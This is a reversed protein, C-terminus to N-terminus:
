SEDDDTTGQPVRGEGIARAIEQHQECGIIKEVATYKGFNFNKIKSKKLDIIRKHNTTITLADIAKSEAAAILAQIAMEPAAFDNCYLILNAGAQYALVAAQGVEFNKTIAKMGMDDTIVLNRYRIKDHLLDKLFIRSLSAPYDPDINTFKIHAPMVLDLRARFARKFPQIEREELQALTATEVPLDDHSDILTNGHGPFHKACAIIDAKLLGRVFASAIKGVADINDSFARDGIATNTPITLVDACPAFNVNIGVAFLERGMCNAVLFAVSSSNLDGIKKASPWKTFPAKLRHVRGGEMDISIFLPAKDPMQLSLKQLEACLYFLQEPGEINRDFLIVGGINNEVIFKAEEPLLSKGKLGIILSQGLSRHIASSM